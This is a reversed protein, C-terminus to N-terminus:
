FVPVSLNPTSFGHIQLIHRKTPVVPIKQLLTNAKTTMCVFPIKWLTLVLNFSKLLIVHLIIRVFFIKPNLIRCVLCAGYFVFWGLGEDNSPFCFESAYENQYTDISRVESKSM